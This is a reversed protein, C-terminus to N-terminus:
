LRIPICVSTKKIVCRDDFLNIFLNRSIFIINFKNTFYRKETLLRFYDNKDLYFDFVSTSLLISIRFCISYRFLVDYYKYKYM